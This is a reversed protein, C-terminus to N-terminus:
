SAPEEDRWSHRPRWGFDRAMRGSDFASAFPPHGAALGSFGPYYETLLDALPRDASTDAAAILYVAHGTTDGDLAALFATGVDRADIYSWFNSQGKAPDARREALVHYQDPAIVNNIRLGAFATAPYRVALSEAIVESLFKSLAYANPSPLRETEDFPITRPVAGDTLLGTAMESSAYVLRRVGLDGAAQMLHYASLTNNAFVDTRAQGSPSPNAALHCVGEPRFQALVDYVAGADTLQVRCFEGPLDLAPDPPVLDLNVVAHGAAAVARVVERGAKGSGGTIAVRM